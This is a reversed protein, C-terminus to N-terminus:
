SRPHVLMARPARCAAGQSRGVPAQPVFPNWNQVKRESNSALDFQERMRSSPDPRLVMVNASYASKRAARKMDISVLRRHNLLARKSNRRSSQSERRIQYSTLCNRAVMPLSPLKSEGEDIARVIDVAIRAPDAVALRRQLFNPAANVLGIDHDHIIDVATM